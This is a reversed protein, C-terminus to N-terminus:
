EEPWEAVTEWLTIEEQLQPKALYGRRDKEEAELRLLDDPRPKTAEDM